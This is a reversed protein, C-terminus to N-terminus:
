RFESNNNENVEGPFWVTIVTDSKVLTKAIM